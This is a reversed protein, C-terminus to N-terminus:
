LHSYASDGAVDHVVRLPQLLAQLFIDHCGRLFKSHFNDPVYDLIGLLFDLLLEILPWIDSAFIDGLYESPDEDIGPWLLRFFFHVM